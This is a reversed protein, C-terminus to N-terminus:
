TITVFPIGASKEPGYEGLYIVHCTAPTALRFKLQGYEPGGHLTRLAEAVVLTAATVGVFPVAISKGALEARGCENKSLYKYGSNERAMKEQLQIEREVEKPDLDPWLEIASRANPYTHLSITDFNGMKGGLGSEIVQGFGATEIHRRAANSDFGCFALAPEGEFKGPKADQKRFHEDFQRELLRTNFGIAKLWCDLVRTKLIGEDGPEFLVGTELNTDEVKDFDYLFLRVHRPMPYPLTALAWLYANGLHGLGLIWVERPLYEVPFGLADPDSVALDPRWLSLAVARRAAQVSVEAFAMFVESFALAACLVGALSCYEREQMRPTRGAPGAYAIWGDFTARLAYAPIDADGFGVVSGQMVGPSATVADAGLIAALSQGFAQKNGPWVLQPAALLAAPIVGHVAGPFCRKAIRAATLVALQLTRSAAVDAGCVLTVAHSRRRLLAAEPNTQDRDTFFKSIRSLQPEM